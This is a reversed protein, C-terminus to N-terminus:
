SPSKQAVAAIRFAPRRGTLDVAFPSDDDWSLVLSEELRLGGLYLGRLYRICAALDKPRAKSVAM